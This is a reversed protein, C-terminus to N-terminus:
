KESREFELHIVMMSNCARIHLQNELEAVELITPCNSFNDLLFRLFFEYYLLVKYLSQEFKNSSPIM